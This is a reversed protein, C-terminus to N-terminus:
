LYEALSQNELKTLKRLKQKHNRCLAHFQDQCLTEQM